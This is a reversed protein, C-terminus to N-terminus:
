IRSQPYKGKFAPGEALERVIDIVTCINKAPLCILDANGFYSKRYCFSTSRLEVRILFLHM